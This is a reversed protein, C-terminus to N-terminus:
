LELGLYKWRLYDAEDKTIANGYYAMNISGQVENYLCDLLTSNNARGKEFAIIDDKLFIPLSLEFSDNVNNM